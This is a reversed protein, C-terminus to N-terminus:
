SLPSWVAFVSHLRYRADSSCNWAELARTLSVFVVSISLKIAPSYGVFAGFKSRQGANETGIRYIQNVPYWYKILSGTLFLVTAM